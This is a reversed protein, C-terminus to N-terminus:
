SSSGVLNCHFLISLLYDSCIADSSIMHLYYSLFLSLRAVSPVVKPTAGVTLIHFPFPTEKELEREIALTSTFVRPLWRLCSFIFEM